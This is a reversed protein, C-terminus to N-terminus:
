GSISISDLPFHIIKHQLGMQLIEAAKPAPGECMMVQESQFLILEVRMMEHEGM